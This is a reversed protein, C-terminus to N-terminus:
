RPAATWRNAGAEWRWVEVTGAADLTVATVRQPERRSRVPYAAAPSPAACLGDADCFVQAPLAGASRGAPDRPAEGWGWALGEPLAEWEEDPVGGLSRTGAPGVDVAYRGDPLVAVLAEGETAVAHDRGRDIAAALREAALEVPYVESPRQLALYTTAVIALCTLVILLEVASFGAANGSSLHPTGRGM